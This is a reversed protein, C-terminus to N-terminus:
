ILSTGTMEKPKAIGMIKLITPTIDALVGVPTMSSLDPLESLPPKSERDKDIIIFPVPNATHEKDIEGSRLNVMEEVNGHDATILSVWNEKLALDVIQGVLDDLTEVAKIAAQLNGTHGVMDPNAFNVVIFKYKRSGIGWLVQHAVESASMGPKQDYFSIRPSPILIRKEGPFTEERGGNFFFTVHAYKETEAIHMQELGKDSIVRALPITIIEPPFAIEVPLGKEYETMATFFLNKIKKRKFGPCSELVFAKTLERARDTRFNFFIIADNDQIKARPQGNEDTIVVPKFGEDYVQNQYSAEIAKLPDNFEKEALGKTMALYAQEVREWHSDRDMAYFRGSITAIQGVGIRKMRQILETIFGRGSDQPTDRGDLFAHIAVDKFENKNVIELLAYLHDNLSHVSGNSVLGILHLKSKNQKAHNIAKLFAQNNFFSGDMISQTIRPLNQWVIKGSGLSLHGVESNGPEGWTLGVAEGSAQLTMTPYLTILKNFVPLNALTIANGQSPPAIGWGDLIILIVSQIKQSNNVM